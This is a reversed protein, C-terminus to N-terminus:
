DYLGQAEELREGQSSLSDLEFECWVYCWLWWYKNGTKVKNKNCREYNMITWCQNVVHLPQNRMECSAEKM